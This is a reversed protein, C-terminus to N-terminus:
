RDYPLEKVLYPGHLHHDQEFSDKEHRYKFYDKSDIIAVDVDPLSRRNKARLILGHVSRKWDDNREELVQLRDILSRHEEERDQIEWLREKLCNCKERLVDITATDERVVVKERVVVEPDSHELKSSLKRYRTRLNKCYREASEKEKEMLKLSLTAEKLRIELEANEDKLRQNEHLLEDNRHFAKVLLEVIAEDDQGPFETRIETYM